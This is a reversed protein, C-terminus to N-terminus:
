NSLQAQIVREMWPKEQQLTTRPGHGPYLVTEDPLALLKKLSLLLDRKSSTPFGTSGYTGQFLTDGSFLLKQSPDFLCVCGPSHGPTHLVQLQNQGVSMSPPYFSLREKPLPSFPIYLMIGDSGPHLLNDQDLPHVCLKLEPYSSLFLIADGVHDWHSHTLCLAELHIQKDKLWTQITEFSGFGPDILLASYSLDDVLLYVNTDLPGSPFTYISM